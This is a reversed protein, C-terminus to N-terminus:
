RPLRTRTLSLSARPGSGTLALSRVKTIGSKERISLVQDYVASGSYQAALSPAVLGAALVTALTASVTRRLKRKMAPKMHIYRGKM